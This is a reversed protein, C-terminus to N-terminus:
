INTRIPVVRRLRPERLYIALWALAGIIAPFLTEFAPHNVRLQVAIAGGLYGTLLVAGLVATRPVIYLITCGLLIAGIVVVSHESFGLQVTAATSHVERMLKTISDFLFFLVVLVTLIRGTWLSANSPTTVNTASMATASM